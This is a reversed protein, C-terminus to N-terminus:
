KSKVKSNFSGFGGLEQSRIGLEQSGVKSNQIIV